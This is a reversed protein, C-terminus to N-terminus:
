AIDHAFRDARRLHAAFRSPRASWITAQHRHRCLARHASRQRLLRARARSKTPLWPKLSAARAIAREVGHWRPSRAASRRVSTVMLRQRAKARLLPDRGAGDVARDPANGTRALCPQRPLLVACPAFVARCAAWCWCAAAKAWRAQLRSSASTLLVCGAIWVGAFLTALPLRQPRPPRRCHRCIQGITERRRQRRAACASM